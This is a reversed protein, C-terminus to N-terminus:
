AAGALYRAADRARSLNVMDSLSGDPAQGRYMGPWDPDPAVTYGGFAMQLTARGSNRWEYGTSNTPGAAVSAVTSFVNTDAVTESAPRSGRPSPQPSPQPRSKSALKRCYDSCYRRGEHLTRKRRGKRRDTDKGARYQLAFRKSCGERACKRTQEPKDDM